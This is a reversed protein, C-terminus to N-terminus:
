RYHDVNAQAQQWELLLSIGKVLKEIQWKKVKKGQTLTIMLSGDDFGTARGNEQLMRLDDSSIVLVHSGGKIRDRCGNPFFHRAVALVEPFPAESPAHASWKKYLADPRLAM